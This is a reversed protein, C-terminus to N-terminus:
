NVGYKASYNADTEKLRNEPCILAWYDTEGIVPTRVGGLSAANEWKGTQGQNPSQCCHGVEDTHVYLFIHQEVKRWLLIHFLMGAPCCIRVSVLEDRDNLKVAETIAEAPKMMKSYFFM